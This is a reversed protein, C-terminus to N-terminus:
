SVTEAYYTIIGSRRAGRCGLKRYARVTAMAAAKTAHLTAYRYARNDGNALDVVVYVPTGPARRTLKLAGDHAPRTLYVRRYGAEGNEVYFCNPTNM